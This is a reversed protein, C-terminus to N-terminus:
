QDRTFAPSIPEKGATKPKIARHRTNPLIDLTKRVGPFKAFRIVWAAATITIAIPKIKTRRKPSISRDAPYVAPTVPATNTIKIVLWPCGQYTANTALMATPASRPKRKPENTARRPMGDKTTVRAANKAKWPIKSRKAPSPPVMRTSSGVIRATSFLLMDGVTLQIKKRM